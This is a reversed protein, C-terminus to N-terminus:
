LLGMGAIVMFFFEEGRMTLETANASKNQPTRKKFACGGAAAIVGGDAVDIV